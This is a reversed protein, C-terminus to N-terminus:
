ACQMIGMVRDFRRAGLDIEPMVLYLAGADGFTLGETEEFQALLTWGEGQLEADSYRARSEPFGENFWYSVEEVVPGQVDRASGLLQHMRALLLADLAELLPGSGAELVELDDTQGTIPMAFGRLPIPGFAFEDPPAQEDLETEADVYLVRTAAVFDMRDLEFYMHDWYVLLTGDKPLPALFPMESFDIAAIFTLPRGDPDTPWIEGPPLLGSGGLRSRVAAGEEEFLAIADRTQRLVGDVAESPVGRGHFYAALARRQEELPAGTRALEVLTEVGDSPVVSAPPQQAAPARVKHHRRLRDFLGVRAHYPGRRASGCGRRLYAPMRVTREM